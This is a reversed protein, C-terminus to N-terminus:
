NCMLEVADFGEMFTPYNQSRMFNYIVKEELVKDNTRKNNREIIVSEPAVVYLAGIKGNGNSVRKVFKVLNRRTKKSLNVNSILFKGTPNEKIEKEFYKDLNINNANCWEWAAGYLEHGSLETDPHSEKYLCVRIKDYSLVHYGRFYQSIIYDKGVGPVGCLLIYNCDDVDARENSYMNNIEVINKAEFIVNLDFDEKRGNEMHFRGNHDAIMLNKLVEFIEFDYNCLKAFSQGDKINFAELHNSIASVVVKVLKPMMDELSFNKYIFNIAHQISASEHGFFNVRPANAINRTYVKGVDHFIASIVSGYDIVNHHGNCEIGKLVMLTHSWVDGELHFPNLHNGDYSHDCCRMRHVIDPNQLIFKKLIESKLDEMAQKKL